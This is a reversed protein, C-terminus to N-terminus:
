FVTGDSAISLPPRGDARRARAIERGARWTGGELIKVLPLETATCGLQQRVREALVDLLAVTLARWEVIVEDAPTHVQELVAAHKPTLMGLDLFLGGNRYEALGTLADLGEVVLGVDQLPEILSYTLWQSLKHFPVLGRTAGKGTVQRHHWVDGLNIGGLTLRGPWIPSLSDLVVQLIQTAQLRGQVARRCLADYLHGLRPAVAGFYQPTQAVVDGLRHLLTLRGALGVLPNHTSVQFAEALTAATIQQLGAADAQWPHEQRSSFVGDVFMQFSAVALGESRSLTQGTSVERYCWREGAGADLLVSTIALEVASRARAEADLGALRQALQAVRDVGGAQFHRWRSHWPIDLRAYTARTMDVVYAATADLQAPHYAFHRLRDDCALALLQQCRERIATPTQLYAIAVSAKQQHAVGRGAM